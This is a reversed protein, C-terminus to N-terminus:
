EGFRQKGRLLQKKPIRLIDDRREGTIIKRVGLKELELIIPIIDDDFSRKRHVAHAVAEPSIRHNRNLRLVIDFALEEGIFKCVALARLFSNDDTSLWCLKRNQTGRPSRQEVNLTLRGAGSRVIIPCGDNQSQQGKAEKKNKSM